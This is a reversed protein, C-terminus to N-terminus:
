VASRVRHMVWWVAAVLGVLSVVVLGGTTIARKLEDGGAGALNAFSFPPAPAGPTVAASGTYSYGSSGANNFAQVRYQYSTSPSVTDSFTVAGAATTGALAYSGGGASREVRFGLENGSNDAWSVIILSSDVVSAVVGSPAAPPPPPPVPTGTASTGPGGEGASNVGTVSFWYQQGNTLGTITAPSGALGGAALSWASGGNTSTYVKYSTAGSLAAWSVVASANGPVVSVGSVVGPPGVWTFVQSAGGTGFESNVTLTHALGDRYQAPINFRWLVTSRPAGAPASYGPYTQTANMQAFYVGDVYGRVTVAYNAYAPSYAYGTAVGETVDYVGIQFDQAAAPRSGLGLLVAVAAFIVVLRVV